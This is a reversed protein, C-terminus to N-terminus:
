CSSSHVVVIMVRLEIGIELQELFPHSYRQGQTRGSQRVHELCVGLPCQLNDM